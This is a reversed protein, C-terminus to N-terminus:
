SQLQVAAGGGAPLPSVVGALDAAAGCVLGAGAGGDSGGAVVAAAGLVGPDGAPEVASGQLLIGGAGGRLVVAVTWAPALLAFVPMERREVFQMGVWLTALAALCYLLWYMAGSVTLPLMAILRLLPLTIPSYVYTFPTPADPAHVREAHFIRQVAMGDLYPDHGARLSFIAARYVQLDWGVVYGPIQSWIALALVALGAFVIAVRRYGSFRVKM